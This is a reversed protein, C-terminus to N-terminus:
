DLDKVFLGYERVVECIDGYFRASPNGERILAAVGVDYQDRGEELMRLAMMNHLGLRRFKPSVGGTKMLLAKKELRSFDKEFSVESLPIPDAHGQAVLPGYDPFTLFIAALEGEPSRIMVSTLPCMRKAYPQGCAIEFLEYPIPTYGLNQGFIDDVMAYMEPLAQLFKAGDMLDISFGEAEPAIKLAERKGAVKQVAAKMSMLQSMYKQGCTYGLEELLGAYYPANYPESPFAGAEFTNLRIRYSGFTSFNIPGYIRQAGQDAAWKEFDQFLKQNPAVADMSEWYGFYAVSRDDIRLDPDFFGALRSQGDAVGVWAKNKMFYPNHSSFSFAVSKSEEPHWLPDESYVQFPLKLFSEPLADNPNWM